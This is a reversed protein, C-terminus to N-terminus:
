LGLGFSIPIDTKENVGWKELKNFLDSLEGKPNGNQGTICGESGWYDTDHARWPIKNSATTGDKNLNEGEKKPIEPFLSGSSITLVEPAYKSEVDPDYTLTFDNESLTDKLGSGPMNAVSSVPIVISDGTTRNEIILLDKGRKDKNEGDFTDYSANSRLLHGVLDAKVDEASLGWLDV